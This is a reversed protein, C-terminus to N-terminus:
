NTKNKTHSMDYSDYSIHSMRQAVSIGFSLFTLLQNLLCHFFCSINGDNFIGHDAFNNLFYELAQRGEDSQLVSAIESPTAIESLKSNEM